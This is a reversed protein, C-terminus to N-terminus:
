SSPESTPPHTMVARPAFGALLALMVYIGFVSGVEGKRVKLGQLVLWLVGAVVFAWNSIPWEGPPLWRRQGAVAGHRSWASWGLWVGVVAAAVAAVPGAVFAAVSPAAVGSGYAVTCWGIWALFISQWRQSMTGWRSEFITARTDLSVPNQQLAVACNTIRSVV